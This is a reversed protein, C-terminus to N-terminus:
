HLRRAPPARTDKHFPDHPTPVHSVPAAERLPESARGEPDRGPALAPAPGPRPSAGRLSRGSARAGGLRAGGRPAGRARDARRPAAAPRPRTPTLGTGRTGAAAWPASVPPRHQRPAPPLRGPAAGCGREPRSARGLRGAGSTTPLAGLPRQAALGGPASGPTRGATLRGWAGRAAPPRAGAGLRRPRLATDPAPGAPPRPPARPWPGAPRGSPRRVRRSLKRTSATGGTESFARQRKVPKATEM